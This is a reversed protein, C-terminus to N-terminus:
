WPSPLANCADSGLNAAIAVIAGLWPGGIAMGTAAGLATEFTCQGVNQLFSNGNGDSSEGNGGLVADMEMVTLERM